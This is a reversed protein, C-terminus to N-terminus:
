LNKMIDSPMPGAQDFRLDNKCIYNERCSHNRDDYVWKAFSERDNPIRSDAVSYFERQSNRKEWIDDVDLFLNSNYLRNVEDRVATDRVDCSKPRNPNNAYDSVLLNMFPNDKSPAQCVEGKRDVELPYGNPLQHASRYSDLFHEKKKSLFDKGNQQIFVIVAVGVAILLFSSANGTAIFLLVGFYIVFRTIANLQEDISLNSDPYFEMLKNRDFLVRPNDLWFPDGGHSEGGGPNPGGGNTNVSFNVSRRIDAADPLPCALQDGVIGRYRHKPFNDWADGKYTKHLDTRESFNVDCM